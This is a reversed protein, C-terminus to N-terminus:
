KKLYDFEPINRDLLKFVPMEVKKIVFNVGQKKIVERVTMHLNGLENQGILLTKDENFKAGWFDDKKSIEVIHRDGTELLADRYKKHQAAKLMLCWFMIQQKNAEFSPHTHESRYKKSVMKAGMGSKQELIEQQIDARHPFRMMQYLNESSPVLVDRFLRLPFGGTMNGFEGWKDKARSFACVNNVDYSNM